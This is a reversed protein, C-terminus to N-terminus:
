VSKKAYDTIYPINVEVGNYAEFGVYWAYILIIFNLVNSIIVLGLLGFFISIIISIAGIFIAQIAHLKATKDTKGSTFYVIIGTLWLLFYALFYVINNKKAETKKEMIDIIKVM